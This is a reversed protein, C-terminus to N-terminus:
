ATPDSERGSAAGFGQVLAEAGHTSLLEERVANLANLNEQTPENAFATEASKLERDLTVTKRHLAIMQRLGTRADDPAAAPGLFWENLRKAQTELQDLVDGFGRAKLHGRLGAAELSEQSSAADLILARISDLEGGGLDVGAFDDWFDHLMNPHNIFSLVIMRARRTTADSGDLKTAAAKLRSSAPTAIEWENLRRGNPSFRASYGARGTGSRRWETQGQGRQKRFREALEDLYHRKVGDDKITSVLMRLDKEFAAKREPSSRDNRDLARQWLVDV